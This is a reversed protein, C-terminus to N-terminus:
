LKFADHIIEGAHALLCSKIIENELPLEFSKTDKNWFYEILNALNNTYMQSAHLCVFGPLNLLGIVQVNNFEIEEGPKTIEVNGGTEASLDVIVSGPKMQKLIDKTIILPAKQGFIQATTIVVDSQACIKVIGRHQKEIQDKSLAKAYGEQTEQTEGLDIKVFRAGLSHVQEETAPRTDFAEVRAGLRRATAIAQLGAVGTGIVLVRAPALTGAPTTMMPFIKNLRQAALIVAVYGALNAQSSLADMKQAITTRPIMDMSISSVKQKALAKLIKQEQFPNLFGIYICGEKLLNVEDLAPQGVRLIIDAGSLLTERKTQILAGAKKYDEDEYGLTLGLSSEISIKAGLAALRKSSDPTLAIRKEQNNLEKLAVIHM